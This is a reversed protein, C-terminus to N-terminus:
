FSMKLIVTQFINLSIFESRRQQEEFKIEMQKFNEEM